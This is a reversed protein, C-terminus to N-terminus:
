IIHKLYLLLLNSLDLDVYNIFLNFLFTNMGTLTNGVLILSGTTLVQVKQQRNQNSYDVVWDIAEEISGTIHVNNKNFNPLQEKWSDSLMKQMELADKM